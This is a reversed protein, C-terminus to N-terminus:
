LLCQLLPIPQKGSVPQFNIPWWLSSSSMSSSPFFSVWPSLKTYRPPATHPSPFVSLSLPVDFLVPQLSRTSLLQPLSPLGASRWFVLPCPWSCTHWVPMGTRFPFRPVSRVVVVFAALTRFCSPVCFLLLLLPLCAFFPRTLPLSPLASSSSLSLGRCLCQGAPGACKESRRVLEPWYMKDTVPGYPGGLYIDPWWIEFLAPGFSSLECHTNKARDGTGFRPLKRAARKSCRSALTDCTRTQCTLWVCQRWHKSWAASWRSGPRMRASKEAFCMDHNRTFLKANQDTLRFYQNIFRRSRHLPNYYCM